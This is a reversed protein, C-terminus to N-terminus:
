KGQVTSDIRKGGQPIGPGGYKIGASTQTAFSRLLEPCGSDEM